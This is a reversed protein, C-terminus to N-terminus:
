GGAKNQPLNKAAYDKPQNGTTETEYSHHEKNDGSPKNELNEVTLSGQEDQLELDSGTIDLAAKAEIFVLDEEAINNDKKDSSPSKKIENLSGEKPPKSAATVDAKPEEEKIVPSKAEDDSSVKSGDKNDESLATDLKGNVDGAPATNATKEDGNPDTQESAEQPVSVPASDAPDSSGAFFRLYIYGSTGSVLSALLIALLDAYGYLDSSWYALGDIFLSMTFGIGTLICVGYLQKLTAGHPMPSLKFRVCFYAMGFIGLQKGIVLGLFIGIPVGSFLLSATIKSLDIGANAFAFLPLILISIYLKSHHFIEMLLHNGDRYKLPIFCATIIGALTAHVGSKLIFLWLFIGLVYYLSKRTVNMFNLIALGLIALGAFVFATTSLESTYFIAIVMIAGVDDFIALTLLFIRLSAPVRKGLMLIIAISFATDTATPIAWGRLAYPDNFNCLFFVLAPMLIGGLAALAPLTINAPKSLHGELIEHKLELGISFFFVTILGDNIWLIVPKILERTGFIFGAQTNLWERYNFSLSSNQYFLALVTFALMIIGSTAEHNLITSIKDRVRNQM